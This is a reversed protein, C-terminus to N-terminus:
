ATCLEQLKRLLKVNPFNDDLSLGAIKKTRKEPTDILFTMAIKQLDEDITCTKRDLSPFSPVFCGIIHEGAVLRKDSTRKNLVMKQVALLGRNRTQAEKLNEALPSGPNAPDLLQGLRAAVKPLENKIFEINIEDGSSSTPHLFAYVGPFFGTAALASLQAEGATHDPKHSAYYQPTKAKASEQIGDIKWFLVLGEFDVQEWLCNRHEPPIAAFFGDTTLRGYIVSTYGELLANVEHANKVIWFSPMQFIVKKPDFESHPVFHHMSMGLWLFGDQKYMVAHETHPPGGFADCRGKCVMEFHYTTSCTGEPTNVGVIGSLAFFKKMWLPGYRSWAENPNMGQLDERTALQHGRSDASCLMATVFYPTFPEGSLFTGNTSPLVLATNESEAMSMRACEKHFQTGFLKVYSNIVPVLWGRYVTWQALSGDIKSSATTISPLQTDGMIAQAMNQQNPDLHSVSGKTDIDDTAHKGRRVAVSALEAGRLLGSKLITIEHTEPNILFTTGRLERAYKPKWMEPGRRHELYKVTLISMTFASKLRSDKFDSLDYVRSIFGAAALEQSLVSLTEHPANDKIFSTSKFGMKFLKASVVSLDNNHTQLLYALLECQTMNHTVPDYGEFIDSANDACEEKKEEKEETAVSREDLEMALTKIWWDVRSFDFHPNQPTRTLVETFRPRIVTPARDDHKVERTPARGDHKVERTPARGDHKVERTTAHQAFNTYQAVLPSARGALEVQKKESGNRTDGSSGCSSTVHFTLVLADFAESPLMARLTDPFMCAVTDLVVIKNRQLANRVEDKFLDNITKSINPVPDGQCWIPIPEFGATQPDGTSLFTNWQKQAAVFIQAELETGVFRTGKNKVLKQLAQNTRYIEYITAYAAGELRRKVGVCVFAILSDREVIVVQGGGIDMIRRAVTSKGAGSPGALMLLVDKNDRLVSVSERPRRIADEFLAQDVSLQNHDVPTDSVRSSTDACRLACIAFVSRQDSCDIKFAESKKQFDPANPDHYGCMHVGFVKCMVKYDEHSIFESMSEHWYYQMTMQSALAHGGFSTFSGKSDCNNNAFVKGADHFLGLMGCFVAMDPRGAEIAYLIANIATMLSHALLSEKHHTCRYVHLMTGEVFLNSCMGTKSRCHAIEEHWHKSAIKRLVDYLSLENLEQRKRDSVYHASKIACIKFIAKLTRCVESHHKRSKGMAELFLACLEDNFSIPDAVIAESIKEIGVLNPATRGDGSVLNEGKKEEM